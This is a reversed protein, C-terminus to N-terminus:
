EALNQIRKESIKKRALSLLENGYIDLFLAMANYGLNHKLAM